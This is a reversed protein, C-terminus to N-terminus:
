RDSNAILSFPAWIAPHVWDPKWGEIATGDARKGTRVAKIAAQLAEGRTMTKDNRLAEVTLRATADDSVRWHSALLSQAGAFLFARALGALGAGGGDGAATNCASLIVWDANLRLSAAESASLVGDDTGSASRPPTFVLGPEEYGDLEGPLLGHTAFAIVRAQGLAPDKKLAAETAADAVRL